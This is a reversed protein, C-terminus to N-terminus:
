VYLIIEVNTGAAKGTADTLDTINLVNEKQRNFLEIRERSMQLGYSNHSLRNVANLEASRQRGIGNDTITYVLKDEKLVASITLLGNTDGRHLIGHHIANEVFPQIILPPVRYHGNILEQEAHLVVKFSHDSRLQELELYLQLTEWDKWFPIVENKSSDLINRILKAFKSLWASANVKDNDQIFNDISSICNFIFHPNMQARLAMMETEAMKQKLLAAKRVVLLRRQLLWWGTSLLLLISSLIFLRQKWWPTRIHITVQLQRANGKQRVLLQYTGPPLRSFSVTHSNDMKMWENGNSISYELDAPGSKGDTIIGAQLSINNETHSFTYATDVPVPKNNVLLQRIYLMGNKVNDKMSKTDWEYFRNAYCTIMKEGDATSMFSLYSPLQDDAIFHQFTKGAPDFRSLGQSTAIWIKGSKDALLANCNNGPLGDQMTFRTFTKDSHHYYYLGEAADSAYIDGNPMCIISTLNAQNIGGAQRYLPYHTLKGTSIEYQYLGGNEVAIWLCHDAESYQLAAYSRDLEPKLFTIFETRGTAPDYQVIGQTRLRIWGTGNKDLVINRVTRENATFLSPPLTISAANNTLLNYRYITEDTSVYCDNGNRCWGTLETDIPKGEATRLAVTQGTQKNWRVVQKKVGDYLIYEGPYGSIAYARNVYAKDGFPAIAQFSSQPPYMLVLGLKSSFWFHDNDRISRYTSSNVTAPLMALPIFQRHRRDFLAPGGEGNYLLTDGKYPIIGYVSHLGTTGAAPAPPLFSEWKHLQQDYHLLGNNYTGIWPDSNEDTYNLQCGYYDELGQYPYWTFQRTNTNVSYLGYTTLVWLEHPSKPILSLIVIRSNNGRAPKNAAAFDAWGSRQFKGNAQDFILLEYWAGVWLKKNRDEQMCNFWRGCKGNSSDPSYTTFQQKVPDYRSIGALTGAWLQHNSDIYLSLVENGPISHPDAPDNYFHDFANGDFRNLGNGTAIWLFGHEDKVVERIDNSSLGDRTTYSIFQYPQAVPYVGQLIFLLSLLWKINM